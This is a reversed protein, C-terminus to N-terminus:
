SQATDPRHISERSEAFFSANLEAVETSGLSVDRVSTLGISLVTVMNLFALKQITSDIVTQVLDFSFEIYCIVCFVPGMALADPKTDIQGLELVQFGLVQILRLLWRKYDPSAELAASSPM